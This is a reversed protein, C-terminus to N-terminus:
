RRTVIGIRTGVDGVPWCGTEANGGLVPIDYVVVRWRNGGRTRGTIYDVPLPDLQPTIAVSTIGPRPLGVETPIGKGRTL